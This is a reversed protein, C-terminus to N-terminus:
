EESMEAIIDDVLGDICILLREVTFDEFPGWIYINSDIDYFDIDLLEIDSDLEMLLNYIEQEFGRANGFYHRIAVNVVKSNKM